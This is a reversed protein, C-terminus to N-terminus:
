KENDFREIKGNVVLGEIGSNERVKDTEKQNTKMRVLIKDEVIELFIDHVLNCSCCALRLWSEDPDVIYSKEEDFEIYDDINSM